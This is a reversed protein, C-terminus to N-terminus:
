AGFNPPPESVLTVLRLLERCGALGEVSREADSVDDADLHRDGAVERDDDFRRRRDHGCWRRHEAGCRRPAHAEIRSGRKGHLPGHTSVACRPRPRLNWFIAGNGSSTATVTLISGLVPGICPTWGFAFAVGLLFAGVMNVQCWALEWRRDTMLIPLRSNRPLSVFVIVLAGGILNTEMQFREFAASPWPVELCCSYPRSGSCSCCRPCIHLRSVADSSGTTGACARCRGRCSRCSAPHFSPSLAPLPRQRWGSCRYKWRAM